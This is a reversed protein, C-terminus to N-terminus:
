EKIVKELWGEELYNVYEGAIEPLRKEVLEQTSLTAPGLNLVDFLQKQEDSLKGYDLVTFDGWSAPDNKKAQAEPSLLFDLAVVAGELNVANFPITVYHTNSLTGLDFVFTKTSSPFQGSSIMNSGHVPNYSMTMYVEGTSFMQDLAASSQPYTEGNRWLYPEIDNLYSWLGDTKSLFEDKDMESFYQEYGGTKDYLVHRVFASGTFDPPAPYTFKGPNQKIWERLEDLNKPPNTVKESDYVMVFQSKGWPIEYGDTKFGFDYNLDSASVNVYRIYNPVMATLDGLLLENEKAIKFNEGNIWFLDVSGDNKKEEKEAMIKNVLDRADNIPIRNLIIGYRNELEPKVYDDMYGNVYQSGGWMHMNVTQGKAAELVSSWEMSSLKEYKDESKKGSCGTFSVAFAVILVISLIKYLTSKM